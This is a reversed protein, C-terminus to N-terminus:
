YRRLKKKPQKRAPEYAKPLVSKMWRQFFRPAEVGVDVVHIPEEDGLYGIGLHCYNLEM